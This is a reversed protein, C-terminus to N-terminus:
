TPRWEAFEAFEDFLPILELLRAIDRKLVATDIGNIPGRKVTGDANLAELWGQFELSRMLSAARDRKSVFALAAKIGGLDSVTDSKLGASALKMFRQAKREPLGARDLFPLWTGHPCSAKAENLRNGADLAKEISTLAAADSEAIIAAIDEAAAVQSNSLTM